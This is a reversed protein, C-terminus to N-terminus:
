GAITPGTVKGRQTCTAFEVRPNSEAHQHNM